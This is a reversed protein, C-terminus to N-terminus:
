SYLYVLITLSLCVKRFSDRVMSITAISEDLGLIRHPNRYVHQLSIPLVNIDYSEIDGGFIGM